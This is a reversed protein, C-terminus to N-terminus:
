YQRGHIFSLSISLYRKKPILLSLYQSLQRDDSDRLPHNLNLNLNHLLIHNSLLLYQSTHLCQSHLYVMITIIISNVLYHNRINWCWLYKTSFKEGIKTSSLSHSSRDFSWYMCLSHVFSATVCSHTSHVHKQHDM